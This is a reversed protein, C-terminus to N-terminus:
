VPWQGLDSGEKENYITITKVFRNIDCEVLITSVRGPLNSLKYLSIALHRIRVLSDQM